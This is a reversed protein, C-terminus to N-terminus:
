PTLSFVTGCGNPPNSCTLTGGQFTTGYLNGNSNQVVGAYPFQGDSGLFSHLTTLVGATTFQFVTGRFGTGGDVTTGYLNGSSGQILTGYPGIGDPCYSKLCFNYLSTFKGTETIKFITGNATKGGGATTGYLNSDSAQVMGGVPNAGDTFAFAHLTTLKGKPTIAFVTGWGQAGGSQTVGYLAGNSAMVLPSQVNNGDTCSPQSCFSYLTTLTGSPTISFITGVFSTGGYNTTGYLIPNKAATLGGM